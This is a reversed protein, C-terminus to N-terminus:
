HTPESNHNFTYKFDVWWNKNEKVVKLQQQEKKYSNSFYIINVSDSVQIISDIIINAERYNEREIKDLKKNFDKLGDMYDKNLSDKLMYKDARVYDGKLSADIFERGSELPDSRDIESKNNCSVGVWAAIFLFLISKKM